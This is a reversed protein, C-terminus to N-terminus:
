MEAAVSCRVLAYIGTAVLPMPQQGAQAGDKSILEPHM